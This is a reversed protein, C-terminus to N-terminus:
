LPREAPLMIVVRVGGERRNSVEIAGGHLEVIKKSVPLGLGTGVGTPKTTFFPDFIKALNEEPIGPGSDEICTSVVTNGVFIQRSTRSGESHLSRSLRESSTTITVTGGSELAHLVNMLVNVFVQQIQSREVSVDPLDRAFHTILEIHQENLKHRLLVLTQELINNLNERRVDMQRSSAFDLLGRTVKDARGIAERMEHLVLAINEDAASVNRELYNLGMTLTALPNKVEHAVGAALTGISEMKAAQTLQLQASKLEEHSRRLEENAHRLQEEARKKETIDWFIGQIGIVRGRADHIPTKIVNVYRKEGGPAQNEETTELTQGSKIVFRDDAQYKRALNSDYFDFDTRGVLDSLRKGVLQCFRQNAFTFRENLDKRLIHQPLTEVLSHYFAESRVLQEEALKRASIDRILGDYGLLEGGENFHPVVTNRVWRLSGDRHLIRHEIPPVAEGRAAREAQQVVDAQDEPHVMRLWLETDTQYDEPTYGTVAICTPSHETQAARGDRVSVRYIYDTIAELLRRYHRESRQLALQLRHREMAYRISHRLELADFKGKVLYDQAGERVAEVALDHDNTGSIVLTASRPAAARLRTFSSLGESDPLHLDCIIVDFYEKAALAEAEALSRIQQVHAGPFGVSLMRALLVSDMRSDEVILVNM